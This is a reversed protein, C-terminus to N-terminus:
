EYEFDRFLYFFFSDRNFNTKVRKNVPPAPTPINPAALSPILAKIMWKKVFYNSM